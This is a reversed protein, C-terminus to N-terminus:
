IAGYVDQGDGRLVPGILRSALRGPTAFVEPVILEDPLPGGVREEIEAVLNALAMSDFGPLELLETDAALPTSEGLVARLAALVLALEATVPTDTM